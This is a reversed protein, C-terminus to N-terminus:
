ITNKVKIPDAPGTKKVPRKIAPHPSPLSGKVASPSVPADRLQTAPAAKPAAAAPKADQAAVQKLFEKSGERYLPDNVAIFADFDGQEQVPATLQATAGAQLPRTVAAPKAKAGPQTVPTEGASAAVAFFIVASAAASLIGSLKM